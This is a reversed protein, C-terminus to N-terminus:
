DTVLDIAETELIHSLRMLKEGRGSCKKENYAM